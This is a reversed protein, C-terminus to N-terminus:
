ALVKWNVHETARWWWAAIEAQVEPADAIRQRDCKDALISGAGACLVFGSLVDDDSDYFAALNRGFPTLATFPGDAAFMPVFHELRKIARLMDSASAWIM